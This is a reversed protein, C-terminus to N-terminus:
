QSRGLRSLRFLPNLSLSSMNRDVKKGRKKLSNRKLSLNHNRNHSLNRKKRRRKRRRRRRRRRRRQMLM